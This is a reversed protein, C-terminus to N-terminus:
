AESRTEDNKDKSTFHYKYLSARIFKPPDDTFPNEGMLELVAHMDCLVCVYFYVFV